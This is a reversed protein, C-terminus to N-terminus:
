LSVTKGLKTVSDCCVGEKLFVLSSEVCPCWWITSVSILNIINKAPLSTGQKAKELWLM